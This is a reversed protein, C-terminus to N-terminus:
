IIYANRLLTTSCFMELRLSPFCTRRSPSTGESDPNQFLHKILGAKELLKYLIFSSIDDVKLAFTDKAEWSLLSSNQVYM